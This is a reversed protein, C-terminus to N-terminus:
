VGVIKKLHCVHLFLFLFVCRFCGYIHPAGVVVCSGFIYNEYWVGILLVCVLGYVESYPACWVKGSCM